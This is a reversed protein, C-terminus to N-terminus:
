KKLYMFSVGTGDDSVKGIDYTKGSITIKSKSPVGVLDSTKCQLRPADTEINTDFIEVSQSPTEFIVKITRAPVTGITAEVAFDDIDFFQSLDEDFAM